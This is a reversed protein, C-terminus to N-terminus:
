ARNGSAYKTVSFNLENNKRTLLSLDSLIQVNKVVPSTPCNEEPAFSRLFMIEKKIKKIHAQMKDASAM